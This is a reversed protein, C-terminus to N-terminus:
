IKSRQAICYYNAGFGKLIKSLNRDARGPQEIFGHLYKKMGDLIVPFTTDTHWQNIVFGSSEIANKYSFFPIHYHWNLYITDRFVNLLKEKCYGAGYLFSLCNPGSFFLIGDEALLAHIKELVNKLSEIPIHEFVSFFLILDYIGESQFNQIDSNYYHITPHTIVEYLNLNCDLADVLPERKQSWRRFIDETVDL